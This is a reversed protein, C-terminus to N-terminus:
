IATEPASTLLSVSPSAAVALVGADVALFRALAALVHRDRLLM